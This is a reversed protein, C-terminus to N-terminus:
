QCGVSAGLEAVTGFTVAQGGTVPGFAIIRRSDQTIAFTHSSGYTKFDMGNENGSRTAPLNFFEPLAKEAVAAACDFIRQQVSRGAQTLADHKPSSTQDPLELSGWRGFRSYAGIDSFHVFLGGGASTWDSLLKQYLTGMRADRNAADMLTNIPTSNQPTGVGVLHQGGEYAVLTVGQTKAVSAHATMRRQVAPLAGEETIGASGGQNLENFLATLGGDSQRTWGEVTAQNQSLGIHDGVYPAIALAKFGASRCPALRSMPCTLATEAIYTNAAQGGMVCHIRELSEGKSVAV